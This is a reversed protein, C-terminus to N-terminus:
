LLLKSEFYITQNNEINQLERIQYYECITIEFESTNNKNNNKPAYIRFHVFYHINKM